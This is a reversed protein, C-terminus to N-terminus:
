LSVSPVCRASFWNIASDTLPPDPRHSLSLFSFFFSVFLVPTLSRYLNLFLSMCLLSLCLPSKLLSYVFPVSLSWFCLPGKTSSLSVSLFLLSRPLLVHGSQLHETVFVWQPRLLHFLRTLYYLVTTRMLDAYMLGRQRIDESVGCCIVCTRSSVSWIRVSSTVADSNIQM